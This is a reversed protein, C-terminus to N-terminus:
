QFSITKTNNEPEKVIAYQQRLTSLLYLMYKRSNVILSNSSLKSISLPASLEPLFKVAGKNIDAGTTSHCVRHGQVASGHIRYEPELGSQRV